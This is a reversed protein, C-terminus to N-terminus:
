EGLDLKLTKEGTLKVRHDARPRGDGPMRVIAEPPVDTRRWGEYSAIERAGLPTVAIRKLLTRPALHGPLRMTGEHELALREPAPAYSEFAVVVTVRGDVPIQIRARPTTDPVLAGGVAVLGDPLVLRTHTTAGPVIDLWGEEDTVVDLPQSGRARGPLVDGEPVLQLAFGRLPQQRGDVLQVRTREVRCHWSAPAQGPREDGNLAGLFAVLDAVDQDSAEFPRLRKDQRRDKAGGNAYHRVVAQLTDFAGDHMYPPRSALDRLTATKFARRDRRKTSFVERGHDANPSEDADVEGGGPPVGRQLAKWAIGTNHFQYDTFVPHSGEMTHCQACGARGRFLALGRQASASLATEDGALYRDIPAETSRITRCYMAIAEALRATTVSPSGFAAQFGEAYRGSAELTEAVDPLKTLDLPVTRVHDKGTREGRGGFGGKDDGTRPGKGKAESGGKPEEGKTKDDAPTTPPPDHPEQPPPADDAPPTTPKPDTPENPQPDGPINPTNPTTPTGTPNPGYSGGGRNRRREGDGLEPAKAFPNERGQTEPAPEATPTTPTTPSAPSAPSTPETPAAPTAAPPAAEPEAGLEVGPGHASLGQKGKIGGVRGLRATVLEEISDFEGDWHATPNRHGDLLTQSHRRTRNVDDDSRPSPDSFGHEPDHCSACSRAGSRSVVPDFFLRRGLEVKAEHASRPAPTAPEPAAGV